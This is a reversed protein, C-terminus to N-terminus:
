ILHHMSTNLWSTRYNKLLENNKFYLFNSYWNFQWAYSKSTVSKWSIKALCVNTFCYEVTNQPKVSYVSTHLASYVWHQTRYFFIWPCIAWTPNSGQVKQWDWASTKGNSWLSQGTTRPLKLDWEMIQTCFSWNSFVQYIHITIKKDMCNTPYLSSIRSRHKIPSFSVCM